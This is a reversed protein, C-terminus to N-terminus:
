IYEWAIREMQLGKKYRAMYADFRAVKLNQSEAIAVAVNM